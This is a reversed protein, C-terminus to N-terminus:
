KGIDKILRKFKYVLLDFKELRNRNNIQDVMGLVLRILGLVCFIWSFWIYNDRRRITKEDKEGLCTIFLYNVVMGDAVGALYFEIIKGIM